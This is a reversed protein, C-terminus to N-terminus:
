YCQNLTVDFILTTYPPIYSENGETGIGKEGYGLGYPIYLIYHGTIYMKKLGERVGDILNSMQFTCNEQHDVVYGNIFKVSYTINVTKLDDPRAGANLIGQRIVKYQLGSPTVLVDPNSANQEIWAQNQAKWDLWDAKKCGLVLTAIVLLFLLKKM